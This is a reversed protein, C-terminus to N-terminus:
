SMPTPASNWKELLQKTQRVVDVSAYWGYVELNTLGSIGCGRQKYRFAYTVIDGSPGKWNGLWQHVCLGPEKTGAMQEQWGTVQSSPSDPNLFDYKLPEWGDKLLRKFIWDLVPEAPYRSDVHYSMRITKGITDFRVDTADPYLVLAAPREAAEIEWFCCIGSCLVLAVAFTTYRLVVARV